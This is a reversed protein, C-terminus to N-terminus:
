AKRHYGLRELLDVPNVQLTTDAEPDSLGAGRAVTRAFAATLLDQPAHADSDVVMRAGAARATLAVHGNTISHGRRASLEILTGTEAALRADELTLLGPHAIIDVDPCEIAVRNTGPEVPEVVTEGHVIVIGAGYERAYRAAEPIARAPLHTLELGPIAIIDWYERVIRCDEILQKLVPKITGLGAHDTLAIAKYGNVLARRVLEVPSLEGDSLFTHTHFDYVM